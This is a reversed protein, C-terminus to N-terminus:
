AARGPLKMGPAMLAHIARLVDPASAFRQEDLDYVEYKVAVFRVGAGDTVIIGVQIGAYEIVQKAM